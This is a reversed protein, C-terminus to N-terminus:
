RCDPPGFSLRQCNRYLRLYPQPSRAAPPPSCAAPPPSCAAASCGTILGTRQDGRGLCTRYYVITWIGDGIEELAIHNSPRQRAIRVGTRRAPVIAM